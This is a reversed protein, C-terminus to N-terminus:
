GRLSIRCPMRQMRWGSAAGDRSCISQIGILGVFSKMRRSENRKRVPNSVASSRGTRPRSRQTAVKLPSQNNARLCKRHLRLSGAFGVTHVCFHAQPVGWTLNLKRPGIASSSLRRAAGKPRRSEGPKGSKEAQRDASHPTSRPNRDGKQRKSGDPVSDAPTNKCDSRRHLHRCHNALIWAGIETPPRKEGETPATKYSSRGTGSSDTIGAAGCEGRSRGRHEM